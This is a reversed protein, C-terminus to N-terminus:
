CFSVRSVIINHLHLFKTGKEIYFKRMVKGSKWGGTNCDAGILTNGIVLNPLFRRLGHSTWNFREKLFRNYRDLITGHNNSINTSYRKLWTFCQYILPVAFVEVPQRNKTVSFRLKIMCQESPIPCIGGKCLCQSDIVIVKILDLTNVYRLGSGSQFLARVVMARDGVLNSLDNDGSVELGNVFAIKFADLLQYFNQITFTSHTKDAKGPQCLQKFDLRQKLNFNNQYIEPRVDDKGFLALQAVTANLHTLLTSKMKDAHEKIFKYM